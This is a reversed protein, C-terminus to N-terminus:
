ACGQQPLFRLSVSHRWIMLALSRGRVNIIYRFTVHTLHVNTHPLGGGPSVRLELLRPQRTGGRRCPVSHLLPAAQTRQPHRCVCNRKHWLKDRSPAVWGHLDEAPLEPRLAAARRGSKHGRSTAPLSPPPRRHRWESELMDWMGPSLFAHTDFRMIDIIKLYNKLLFLFVSNNYVRHNM